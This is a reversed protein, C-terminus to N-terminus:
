VCYLWQFRYLGPRRSPPQPQSLHRPAWEKCSIRNERPLSVPARPSYCRTETMDHRAEIAARAFTLM